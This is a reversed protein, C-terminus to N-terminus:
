EEGPFTTEDISIQDEMSQDEVFIKGTWGNFDTIIDLDSIDETLYTLRYTLQIGLIPSVGESQQSSETSILQSRQLIKKGEYTLYPDFNMIRECNFAFDDMLDLTTSIKGKALFEIVLDLERKTSKPVTGMAESTEIETFVICAPLNEDSPSYAQNVFFKLGEFEPLSKLKEIIIKKILKRNLM